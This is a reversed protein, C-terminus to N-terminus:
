QSYNLMGAFNEITSLIKRLHSVIRLLFLTTTVSMIFLSFYIDSIFSLSKKIISSNYTSFRFTVYALSSLVTQRDRCPLASRILARSILPNVASFLSLQVSTTCFDLREAHVKGLRIKRYCRCTEAAVIM